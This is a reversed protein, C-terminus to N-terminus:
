KASRLIQYGMDCLQCGDRSFRRGGETYCQFFQSSLTSNSQRFPLNEGPRPPFQDMGGIHFTSPRRSVDAHGGRFIEFTQMGEPLFAPWRGKNNKLWPVHAHSGGAVRDPLWNWLQEVTHGFRERLRNHCPTFSSRCQHKHLGWFTRRRRILDRNDRVNCAHQNAKQLRSSIRVIGM